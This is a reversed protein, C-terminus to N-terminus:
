LSMALHLTTTVITTAHHLKLTHGRCNNRKRSYMEYTEKTLSLWQGCLQRLFAKSVRSSSHINQDGTQPM